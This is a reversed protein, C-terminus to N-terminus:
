SFMAPYKMPRLLDAVPEALARFPAVARRGAEVEGAHVMKVILIPNGHLEEPVFPVPPAPMVAAITSLEDPAAQAAAVFGAIVDPTAPLALVGALVTDVPSEQTHTM